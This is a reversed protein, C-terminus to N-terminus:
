EGGAQRNAALFAASNGSLTRNIIEDVASLLDAGASRLQDLNAAPHVRTLEEPEARHNDRGRERLEM